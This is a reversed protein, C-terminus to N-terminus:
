RKLWRSVWSMRDTIDDLRAGTTALNLRAYQSNGPGFDPGFSLEIGAHKRVLDCLRYSAGARFSAL